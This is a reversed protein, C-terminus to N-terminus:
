SAPKKELNTIVRKIMGLFTRRQAASFGALMEEDRERGLAYIQAVSRAGKRTLWLGNSRADDKSARRELFGGQELLDLIPVITSRDLDIAKAIRGQVAGPNLDVFVLLGIHRPAIGLDSLRKGFDRLIALHARRVQYAISETLHGLELGSRPDFSDNAVAARRTRKPAIAM